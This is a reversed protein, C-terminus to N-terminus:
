RLVSQLKSRRCLLQQAQLHMLMMPWTMMRHQRQQQKSAKARQEKAAAAALRQRRPRVRSPAWLREPGAANPRRTHREALRRQRSIRCTSQSPRRCSCCREPLAPVAVGTCSCSMKLTHANAKVRQMAPWSAINTETCRRLTQKPSEAGASKQQRLTRRKRQLATMALMRRSFLASAASGTRWLFLSVMSCAACSLAILTLLVKWM